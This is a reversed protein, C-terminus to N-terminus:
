VCVLQLQVKLLQFKFISEFDFTAGPMCKGVDDKCQEPVLNHNELHRMMAKKATRAEPLKPFDIGNSFKLRSYLGSAKDFLFSFFRRLTNYRENSLRLNTKLFCGISNLHQQLERAMVLMGSKAHSFHNAAELVEDLEQPNM